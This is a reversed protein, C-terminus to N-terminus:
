QKGGRHTRLTKVKRGGRKRWQRTWFKKDGRGIIMRKRAPMHEDISTMHMSM